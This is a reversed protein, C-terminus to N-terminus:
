GQPQSLATAVASNAIAAVAEEAKIRADEYEWLEILPQIYAIEEFKENNREQRNVFEIEGYTDYWQIADVQSDFDISDFYLFKGDIGISKDHRVYTFRM